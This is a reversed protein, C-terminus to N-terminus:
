ATPARGRAQRRHLGTLYDAAKDVVTCVAEPEDYCTYLIETVDM